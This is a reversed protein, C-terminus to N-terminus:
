IKLEFIKKCEKNKCRLFVGRCSADESVMVNVTHNCYPCTVKKKKEIKEIQLVEPWRFSCM